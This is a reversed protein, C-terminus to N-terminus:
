LIVVVHKTQFIGQKMLLLSMPWATYHYKLSSPAVQKGINLSDQKNIYFKDFLKFISILSNTNTDVFDCCTGAVWCTLKNMHM